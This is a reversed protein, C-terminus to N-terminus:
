ETLTAGLESRMQEVRAVGATHGKEAYFSRADAFTALAEERKGAAALVLGLDVLADAHHALDEEGPSLAVAERALREAEEFEGKRALLKGRVQRVLMLTMVDDEAGAEEARVTVEWAEEDRGLRYLAEANYALLTSLWGQEGAQELHGRASLAAELALETDGTMLEVETGGMEIAGLFTLQGLERAEKRGREIEARALALEGRMAELQGRLSRILPNTSPNADYFALAETVTFPGFAVAAYRWMRADQVVGTSGAREGHEIVRELAQALARSRGAAHERSAALMFAEALGAGDEQETFYAISEDALAQVEEPDLPDAFYAVYATALRARLERSRDGVERARTAVEGLEARATSLDGVRFRSRSLMVVLDIPQREVPLL